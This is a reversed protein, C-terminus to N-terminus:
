IRKYGHWFGGGPQRSAGATVRRLSTNASSRVAVRYVDTGADPPMLESANGSHAGVQLQCSNPTGGRPAVAGFWRGSYTAGFIRTFSTAGSAKRYVTVDVQVASCEQQSIASGVGGESFDKGWVDFKSSYTSPPTSNSPVAIVLVYRNCIGQGYTAGSTQQVGASGAGMTVTANATVAPCDVVSRSMTTSGETTLRRTQPQLQLDQAASRAVGITSIGVVAVFVMTWGLVLRKM